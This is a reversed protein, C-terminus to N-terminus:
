YVTNLKIQSKLKDVQFHEDHSDSFSFIALFLCQAFADEIGRPADHHAFAKGRQGHALNGVGDFIRGGRQIQMKRAAVLDCVRQALLAKRLQQLGEHREDCDGIRGLPELREPPSIDRKADRM